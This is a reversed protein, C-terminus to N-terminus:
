STQRRWSQGRKHYEVMWTDKVNKSISLPCKDMDDNSRVHNPLMQCLESVTFASWFEGADTIGEKSMPNVLHLAEKRYVKEPFHQWCFYSDQSVGLEKLKKAQILTIVQNEIKM